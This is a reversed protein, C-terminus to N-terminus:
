HLLGLSLLCEEVLPEAAKSFERKFHAAENAFAQDLPGLVALSGESSLRSRAQGAFAVTPMWIGGSGLASQPSESAEETHGSM